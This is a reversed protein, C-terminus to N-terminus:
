AHAFGITLTTTTFYNFLCFIQRPLFLINMTVIIPTTFKPFFFSFLNKYFTRAAASFHKLFKILIAVFSFKNVVVLPAWFVPKPFFNSFAIIAPNPSTRGIFTPPVPVKGNISDKNKNVTKRIFKM